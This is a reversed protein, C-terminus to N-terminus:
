RQVLNPIKNELNLIFVDGKFETQLKRLPM